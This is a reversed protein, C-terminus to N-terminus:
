GSAEDIGPRLDQAVAGSVVARSAPVAHDVPQEGLDQGLQIQRSVCNGHCRDPAGDEGVVVEVDVEDFRGM